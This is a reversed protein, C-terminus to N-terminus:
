RNRKLEYALLDLKTRFLKYAENSLRIKGDLKLKLIYNPETELITQITEGFHEKYFLKDELRLQM